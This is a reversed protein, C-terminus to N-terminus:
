FGQGVSLRFRVLQQQFAVHMAPDFSDTGHRPTLLRCPQIQSVLRIRDFM